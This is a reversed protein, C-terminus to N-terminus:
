RAVLEADRKQQMRADYEQEPVLEHDRNYMGHYFTARGVGIFNCDLCRAVGGLQRLSALEAPTITTANM